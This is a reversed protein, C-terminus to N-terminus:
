YLRIPVDVTTADFQSRTVVLSIVWTGSVPLNVKNAGYRDAATSRLRLPIPGLQREPQTATGTVAKAATGPSLVVDVTVRGHVGPDVTVTVEHGGGLAATSSVPARHEAALAETGRPQSVLIATAALVLGAILVEVLVSRRLRGIERDESPAGAPAARVQPGGAPMAYAVPLAYRRQILMRAGNGLAVLAFFLLIKVTVLLGYSTTFIADVTGVGRWAAYGGTVAMAIVATFAVRSVVPLVTRLEAAERRPLVAGVLMVLAGVWAAMACLHVVDASISLWRPNTTEPHGTASFSLAVGIALPWAADEYRVHRAGHLVRGLLVAIAALLLLRVCHLQGYGSRLTDELLSWDLAHTPGADDVYPGQLALEALCGLVLAGWGSWVIRRARREERGAPWITLLLWSGGLLAFGAYSVWRAVEFIASTTHNVTDGGSGGPAAALSGHGVVFRVIGAVPHSDASIVRYSEIYTGDGLGPTLRNAIKTGDGGPHFAAGTDVRTGDADTVHLYGLEGLAVPEDFTITVIRPAQQLRAGDAPDSSDVTAHASAPGALAIALGVAAALLALLAAARRM